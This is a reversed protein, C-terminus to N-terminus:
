VTDRRCVRRVLRRGGNAGPEGCRGTRYLRLYRALRRVDRRRYRHEGWGAPRHRGRSGPSRFPRVARHRRGALYFGYRGHRRQRGDAGDAGSRRHRRDGRDGCPRIPWDRRHRGDAGAGPRGRLTAWARPGTVGQQARPAVRGRPASPTGTSSQGRDALRRAPGRPPTGWTAPIRYRASATSAPMSRTRLTTGGNGARSRLRGGYCGAIRDGHESCAVCLRCERGERHSHLGSAGALLDLEGCRAYRDRSSPARDPM